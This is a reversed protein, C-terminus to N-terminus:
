TGICVRVIRATNALYLLKNWRDLLNYTNINSISKNTKNNLRLSVAKIYVWSHVAALEFSYMENKISLHSRTNKTRLAANQIRICAICVAFGKSYQSLTGLSRPHVTCMCKTLKKMNKELESLPAFINKTSLQKLPQFPWAM